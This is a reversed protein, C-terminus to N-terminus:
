PECFVCNREVFIYKTPVLEAVSLMSSRASACSSVRSSESLRSSCSSCGGAASFGSGSRFFDFVGFVLTLNSKVDKLKRAQVQSQLTKLDRHTLPRKIQDVKWDAGVTVMTPAQGVQKQLAKTLQEQLTAVTTKLAEM